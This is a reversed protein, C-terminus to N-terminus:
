EKFRLCKGGVVFVVDVTSKSCNTRHKIVISFSVQDVEKERENGEGDREIKVQM